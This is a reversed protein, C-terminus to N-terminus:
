RTGIAKSGACSFAGSVIQAQRIETQSPDPVRSVASCVSADCARIGARLSGSTFLNGIVPANNVWSAGIRDYCLDHQACGADVRNTPIGAGGPGCYNAGPLTLAARTPAPNPLRPPLPPQKLVIGVQGPTLPGSGATMYDVDTWGGDVDISYTPPPQTLGVETCITDTSESCAGPAPPVCSGWKANWVFPPLCVNGGGGGNGGQYCTVGEEDCNPDGSEDCDDDDCDVELGRRDRHKIPDGLVYAYRNWSSPDKPSASEDYPDPTLFRGTGPNHYRNVAYDLGTEADRFYGTFKETGNTTASPKEQGYPYYKGISGLRDAGVYGNVNKILKKGFYYNTTGQNAVLQPTAPSSNILGGLVQLSYTALKQGSISWFTIEDTSLSGSTWIGRWVRKNGPAYSYQVNGTGVAVLRNQVDYYPNQGNIQATSNGNYDTSGVHNTAPDPVVSYAPASGATVTQTSLNGFGDYGYSQGWSSSTAGASALRNLSDYAYVVQEGTINDTQSTIKGNNQTSSYNYTNNVVQVGYAYVSLGTLQVMSNYSRLENYSTGTISLLENSPGYTTGSIISSSSGLDTMTNLRGMSDVAYGLDPGATTSGSPGYTPYQMATM